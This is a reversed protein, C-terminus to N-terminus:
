DETKETLYQGKQKTPKALRRNAEWARHGVFALVGKTSIALSTLAIHEVRKNHTGVRAAPTDTMDRTFVVKEIDYTTKIRAQLALFEPNSCM